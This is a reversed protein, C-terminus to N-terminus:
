KKLLNYTLSPPPIHEPINFQVNKFLMFNFSILYYLRAHQTAM